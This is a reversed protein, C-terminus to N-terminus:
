AGYREHLYQEFTLKGDRHDPCTLNGQAVLRSAKLPLWLNVLRRRSRRAHLWARAISRCDRVEPGGFDSLMGSPRDLSIDVVRRAVEREDVPQFQWGFPISTVGPLRSFSALMLEM